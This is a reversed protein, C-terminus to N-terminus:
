EEIRAAIRNRLRCAQHRASAGFVGFWLRGRRGTASWGSDEQRVAPRGGSGARMVEFFRQEAGRAHAEDPYRILIASLGGRYRALLGETGGDLLLLNDEALPLRRKLSPWDHFYHIQSEIRGRRPLLALLAPPGKGAPIRAAIAGGLERVARRSSATERLAVVSVFYKNKWFYLTAGQVESERGVGATPGERMDNRYAGFADAASGMDFVDVLIDPGGEKRYRRSVAARLGLALYVEAGGDILRYISERDFVGDPGAATYGATQGPLLGTLGSGTEPSPM